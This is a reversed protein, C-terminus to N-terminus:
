KSLREKKKVEELFGDCQDTISTEIKKMEKLLIKINEVGKIKKLVLRNILDRIAPAWHSHYGISSGDMAMYTSGDSKKKRTCQKYVVYNTSGSCKLVYKDIKIM